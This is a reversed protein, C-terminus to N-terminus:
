EDDEGIRRVAEYIEKVFDKNDMNLLEEVIASTEDTEDRIEEEKEKQVERILEIFEDKTVFSMKNGDMLDIVSYKISDDFDVFIKLLKGERCFCICRKRIRNAQFLLTTLTGSLETNISLHLRDQLNDYMLFTFKDDEKDRIEDYNLYEFFREEVGSEFDSNDILKDLVISSHDIKEVNLKSSKIELFEYYQRIFFDAGYYDDLYRKIEKFSIKKSFINDKSKQSIMLKVFSEYVTLYIDVKDAFINFKLQFDENINDVIKNIKELVEDIDNIKIEKLNKNYEIFSNEVLGTDNFEVEFLETIIYKVYTTKYDSHLFNELLYSFFLIHSLSEDYCSFINPTSSNPLLRFKIGSKKTIAKYFILATPYKIFNEIGVLEIFEVYKKCIFSNKFTKSFIEKYSEILIDYVVVDVLFENHDETFITEKTKIEKLSLPTDKIFSLKLVFRDNVIYCKNYGYCREYEKISYIKMDKDNLFLKILYIAFEGIKSNSYRKDLCGLVWTILLSKLNVKLFEIDDFYNQKSLM